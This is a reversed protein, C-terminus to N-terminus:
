KFFLLASLISSWTVITLLSSTLQEYPNCYKFEKAFALENDFITVNCIEEFYGSRYADCGSKLMNSYMVLASDSYIAKLEDIIEEDSICCVVGSTIKEELWEPSGAINHRQLETRIQEHCYFHYGPMETIRDILKNEEDKHILYTKSVFDTDLLAYKEKM